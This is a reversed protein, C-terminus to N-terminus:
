EQKHSKASKRRFYKISNGFFTALILVLYALLFLGLAFDLRVYQDFLRILILFVVMVCLHAWLNNRWKLLKRLM